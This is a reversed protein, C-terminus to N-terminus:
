EEEEEEEEEDDDQVDRLDGGVPEFEKYVWIGDDGETDIAKVLRYWECYYPIRVEVPSYMYESAPARFSGLAKRMRRTISNEHEAAAFGCVWEDRFWADLTGEILLTRLSPLHPVVTQLVLAMDRAINGSDIALELTHLRTLQAISSANRTGFSWRSQYTPFCRFSLLSSSHHPLVRSFFIDADTSKHSESEPESEDVRSLHLRELGSYSVLYESLAASVATVTLETLQVGRMQLGHWIASLDLQSPISLELSSLGPLNELLAALVISAGETTDELPIRLYSSPDHIQLKKLVPGHLRDFGNLANSRRGVSVSLERLPFAALADLIVQAAWIPDTQGTAWKVTHVIERLAELAPPLNKKLSAAVREAMETVEPDTPYFPVLNVINLTRAYQSYPTADTGLTELYSLDQELSEKRINITLTSFFIPDLAACLGACTTRLNAQEARTLYFALEHVLEVSLSLLM